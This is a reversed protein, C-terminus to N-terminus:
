LVLVLSENLSVSLSACASAAKSLDFLFRQSSIVHLLHLFLHPTTFARWELEKKGNARRTKWIFLASNIM